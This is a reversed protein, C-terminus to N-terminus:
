GMIYRVDTEDQVSPTGRVNALYQIMKASCPGTVKICFFIKRLGGRKSAIFDILNDQQEATTANIQNTGGFQVFKFEELQANLLLPSGFIYSSDIREFELSKLFNQRSIMELMDQVEPQLRVDFSTGNFINGVLKFSKLKTISTLDIYKQLPVLLCLSIELHQLNKMAVKTDLVGVTVFGEIFRSDDVCMEFIDINLHVLNECLPMMTILENQSETVPKGTVQLSIKQQYKIHLAKMTSFYSAVCVNPTQEHRFPLFVYKIKDYSRTIVSSKVIPSPGGERFWINEWLEPRSNHIETMEKCTLALNLQDKFPLNEFIMEIIHPTKHLLDILSKVNQNNDSKHIIYITM